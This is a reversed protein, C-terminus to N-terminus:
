SLDLKVLDPEIMEKFSSTCYAWNVLDVKFPLDSEEFDEEIHSVINDPIQDKFLLDLDSFRRAKGKVRSGFAYFSYPYKKLIGKIIDLHRPEMELM